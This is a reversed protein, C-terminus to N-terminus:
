SPRPLGVYEDLAFGRASAFSLGENEHLAVLSDYVGLPTSGTALGLVADPKARAATRRHRAGGTRIGGPSEVIVVEM